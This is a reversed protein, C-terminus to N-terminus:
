TQGGRLFYLGAYIKIDIVFGAQARDNMWGDIEALPVLHVKIEEHGVGGGEGVKRLREARLLTIIEDCMGASPAGVTLVSFSSARYGTEEELERNAASFLDEDEPSEHDGVLGAPWEIVQASVPPRHQEVLVAEGEATLAVIVVIDTIGPRTAYEWRGRRRLELFKGRGLVTEPEPEGSSM